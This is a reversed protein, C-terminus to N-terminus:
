PRATCFLMIHRGDLDDELANSAWADTLVKIAVERNLRTDIATSLGM